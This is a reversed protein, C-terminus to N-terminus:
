APWIGQAKQHKISGNVFEIMSKQWERISESVDLLYITTLKDNRRIM